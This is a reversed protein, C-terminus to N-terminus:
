APEGPHTAKASPRSEFRAHWAALAPRTRRWELDGFRFDIYGLACGLAAHGIDFPAQTFDAAAADLQDLATAVKLAFTDLWAQTQREPPKLREQRWVILADLTGDGLAQRKLADWRAPGAAPFLRAGDHLTDLYECIVRSDHLTTGDDLVLTPIQGLPNCPLIRPNAESMAVVIDDRAIADALGCEHAVVMVKRVYPSAKSWYLKM